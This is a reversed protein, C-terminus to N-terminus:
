THVFSFLRVATSSPILSGNDRNGVFLRSIIQRGGLFWPWLQSHRVRTSQQSASEWALKFGPWAVRCPEHNSQEIVDFAGERHRVSGAPWHCGVVLRHVGSSLDPRGVSKDVAGAPLVMKGERGFLATEPYVRAQM